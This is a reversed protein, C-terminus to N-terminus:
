EESRTAVAPASAVVLVPRCCVCACVCVSLGSSMYYQLAMFIWMRNVTIGGPWLRSTAAPALQEGACKDVIYNSVYFNTEKTINEIVDDTLMIKM